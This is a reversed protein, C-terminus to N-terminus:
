SGEGRKSTIHTSQSGKCLARVRLKLEAQSTLYSAEHSPYPYPIDWGTVREFRELPLGSEVVRALVEAGLDSTRHGEHFVLLRRTKKLSRLIPAIDLPSITALELVEVSCGEAKLEESVQLARHLCAGYSLLTLQSGRRRLLTFNLPIREPEDPVWEKHSFYLSTPELFIVPDPDEIASLLLARATRPGSPCVVKVGPTQAFLAEISECHSEPAGVGGGVPTRVVLPASLAGRTRQRLRGIHSCLQEYASYIFGAFQVECVPRLGGAALGLCAGMVGSESIPTDVVRTPGFRQLLERSVRFVGGLQAVDQGLLLVREDASMAESLALNLAESLNRRQGQAGRTERTSFLITPRRAPKSPRLKLAQDRQQALEPSPTSLTSDFSVRPEAQYLACSREAVKVADNLSLEFRRSLRARASKVEVGHSELARELREIATEIPRVAEDDRYLEPQDIVSHGGERWTLAEIFVPGEGARILELASSCADETARLDDGDVRLAKMGYSEARRTLSSVPSQKDLPTSIAWGNNQCFFLLPLRWLGALNMAEHCDGKSMAGDGLCVAVVHGQGRRLEASALGVAHPLQTAVPACVPWTRGFRPHADEYGMWFTLLADLPVGHRYMAASDRFTPLLWDREGLARALGVQAAEQGRFPTYLRARGQKSLACIKEDLCRVFLLEEYDSTLERLTM